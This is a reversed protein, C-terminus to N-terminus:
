KTARVVGNFTWSQVNGPFPALLNEDEGMGMRRSM